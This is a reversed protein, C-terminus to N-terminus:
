DEVHFRHLPVPAPMRGTMYAEYGIADRLRRLSARRYAETFAHTADHLLDWERYLVLCEAVADSLQEELHPEIASRTHAWSAFDRNLKKAAQIAELSPFLILDGLPPADIPLLWLLILFRFSM